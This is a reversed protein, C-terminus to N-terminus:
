YLCSSLIEKEGPTREGGTMKNRGGTKRKGTRESRKGKM